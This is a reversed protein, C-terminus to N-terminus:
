ILEDGTLYRPEAFVRRVMPEFFSAPLSEFNPDFCNQDYKACFEACAGFWPSDRFRDRANRDGGSHHAYYYSQFVGHHKVIWVVEPRCYPRLVAGMFEGHTIPALEDGIDHLLAAVIYEEDRGDQHARTASQLSHEYRTVKYGAFSHRLGELATMLRDPLTQMHEEGLRDLLAYDEATGDEMRTFAVTKM